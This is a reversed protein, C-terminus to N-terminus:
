ANGGPSIEAELDEARMPVSTVEEGLEALADNIASAIAAPAGLYGGEGCGKQGHTTLPSPTCHEVLDVPPVELATPILYDALTGSLLQGVEDYEVMEYLAAGVGHDVM